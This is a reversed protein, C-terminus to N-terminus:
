TQENKQETIWRKVTVECPYDEYPLDSTDLTGVLAGEIIDRKFQKYPLLYDPLERHVKGCNQCKYRYIKIKEIRGFEARIKRTVRDYASM